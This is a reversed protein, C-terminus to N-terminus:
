LSSLTDKNNNFSKVKIITRVTKKFDQRDFIKLQNKFTLIENVAEFINFFNKMLILELLCM